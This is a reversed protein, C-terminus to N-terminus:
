FFTRLFLHICLFVLTSTGYVKIIKRRNQIDEWWLMIWPKYLGLSMFVFSVLAIAASLNSLVQM